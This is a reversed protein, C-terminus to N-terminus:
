GCLTWVMNGDIEVAHIPFAQELYGLVYDRPTLAGVLEGRDM